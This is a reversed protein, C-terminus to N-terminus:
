QEQQALLSSVNEMESILVAELSFSEPLLQTYYFKATSIKLEYWPDPMEELASKAAGAMRAWFWAFLLHGLLRLYASCKSVARGLKTLELDILFRSINSVSTLLRILTTRFEDFKQDLGVGETWERIAMLLQGLRRGNDAIVNRMLLDKAQIGSTGEYLTTVRVDRALQELGSERIYGHGGLVQIALYISQQANETLFGKVIPTVLDLTDLAHKNRYADPHYESLDFMIAIWHALARGGETWAKQTLLMRQVDDHEILLSPSPGYGSKGQRRTQAYSFAQQMAIESIGVAQLGSLLRAEKMVPFIAELGGGIEGVLWGRAQDFRMTCTPSGHLGMKKEIGDCYVGNQIGSELLKPILFLTLGRVGAPSGPLRALVLHLINATLDHEAGSVFIKTGSVLYTGDSDDPVAKTKVLGVDSGAQPETMCMSSLVEGSTLRPLWFAQLEECGHKRLCSSVCHNITATMVFAHSGSAIQEHVMSWALRPLELGGMEQDACITPWGLERFAGWADSFGPSTAVNGASWKCGEHDAACNVAILQDAAFRGSERIVTKLTMSDFPAYRPIGRLEEEVNLVDCLLFELDRHPPNYSLM